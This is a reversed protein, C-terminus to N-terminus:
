RRGTLPRRMNRMEKGGFTVVLVATILINDLVTRERGWVKVGVMELVELYITRTIGWNTKIIGQAERPKWMM